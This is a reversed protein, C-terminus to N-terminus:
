EVLKNRAIIARLWRGKKLINEFKICKQQFKSVKQRKKGKKQFIAGMGKSELIPGTNFSSTITVYNYSSIVPVNHSILHTM